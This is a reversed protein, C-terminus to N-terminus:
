KPTAQPFAASHPPRWCRSCRPEYDDAGGIMRGDVIPTLRQTHGATAGCRACDARCLIVSPSTTDLLKRVVPFPKGWSDLDLATMVVEIGRRALEQCVTPLAEDFFQAEDIAVLRTRGDIRELIEVASSVVEASITEMRHTVIKDWRYRDDVRHKFAMAKLPSSCLELRATGARFRRLLETTKGSFMCGLILGLELPRPSCLELKATGPEPLADLSPATQGTPGM